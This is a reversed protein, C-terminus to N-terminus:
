KIGELSWVINIEVAQFRHYSHDVCGSLLKMDCLVSPRCDKSLSLSIMLCGPPRQLSLPHSTLLGSVSLFCLLFILM